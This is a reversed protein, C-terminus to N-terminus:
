NKHEEKRSQKVKEIIDWGLKKLIFPAVAIAILNFIAISSNLNLKFKFEVESWWVLSIIVGYILFYIYLKLFSLKKSNRRFCYMQILIKPLVEMTIKAVMGYIFFMLISTIIGFVFEVSSYKEFKSSDGTLIGIVFFLVIVVFIEITVLFLTNKLILKM